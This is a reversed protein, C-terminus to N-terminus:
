RLDMCVLRMETMEEIAYRAGERGIGSKKVGGYPMLDARYTPMENILFGGVEVQRAATMADKLRRTFVAGQLGYDSDNLLEIGQELSDIPNVCVVPAFAEKCSIKARPDVRTLISPQLIAGERGGGCVLTAGGTVAEEIWGARTVAEQESIMPGMDTDEGLQNGVKLATVLSKLLEVFGDFHSEHVYVRQVSICVQGALAYGASATKRAALEWDGDDMVIVGSNSGLEMTTKKLGATKMIREGTEPSGTLTVFNVRPDSVLADGIQAGHGTIVSMAKPPLGADLMLRGLMLGSLPTVTAPKLVVSNGAAIAPAVKHVALNLPFNFPTIAAVVGVPVRFYFGFKGEGNPASEFPVVEGGIRKAEESAWGFNSVARDVEVRAERITKGVERAITLAFDEARESLLASARALIESRQLTTLAAVERKGEAASALARDLDGKDGAPVTDILSGDYPNEVPITKSKDLWEGAILMKM